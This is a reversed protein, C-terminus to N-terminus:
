MQSGLKNECFLGLVHVCRKLAVYTRVQQIVEERAKRKFEKRAEINNVSEFSGGYAAMVTVYIHKQWVVTAFTERCRQKWASQQAQHARRAGCQNQMAERM